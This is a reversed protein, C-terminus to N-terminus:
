ISKSPIIALRKESDLWANIVAKVVTALPIAFFVGWFGWLGGFILVAIIVAVPHIKLTESFLLPGLINGDLIMLIIYIISLYLFHKEFGWQLYGIIVIPITVIIVGVYPILTSLGVLVGLLISYNLGLLAFTITTVTGVILMELAKARIYNAMQQNVEAWVELILRRKTPLFNALWSLIQDRDKVFFFVMLPVLVLYVVLAMVSFLTTLSFNLAVKGFNALDAQYTQMLNQIQDTSIYDPYRQSLGTFIMEGKKTMSPIENFLNILQEWILPILLFVALLFLGLFLLFVLSVALAHPVKRKRLQTILGDLLYALVISFIVPALLKGAFVFILILVIISLILMIFETNAFRRQLWHTFQQPM